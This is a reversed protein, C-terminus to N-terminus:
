QLTNQAFGLCRYDHASLPAILAFALYDIDQGFVKGDYRAIGTAVIGAVGHDNIALLENQLQNGATHQAFTASAYDAVTHNEVRYCKQFFHRAQTVRPYHNVPIKKDAIPRLHNQRVM